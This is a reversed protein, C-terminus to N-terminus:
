SHIDFALPFGVGREMLQEAFVGTLSIADDHFVGAEGVVDIQSAIPLLFNVLLVRLKAFPLAFCSEATEVNAAKHRRTLCEKRVAIEVKNGTDGVRTEQTNALSTKEM